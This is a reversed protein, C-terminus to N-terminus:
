VDRDYCRVRKLLELAMCPGIREALQQECGSPIEVAAPEGVAIPLCASSM